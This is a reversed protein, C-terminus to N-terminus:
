NSWDVVEHLFWVNNKRIFQYEVKVGTDFVGVIVTSTSDNQTNFEFTLNGEDFRHYTYDCYATFHTITDYTDTSEKYEVYWDKLPFEIRTQQFDSNTKFEDWFETFDEKETESVSKSYDHKICSSLLCCFCLIYIIRKM